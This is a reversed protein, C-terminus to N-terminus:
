DESTNGCAAVCKWYIAATFMFQGEVKLSSSASKKAAELMEQDDSEYIVKIKEKKNQKEFADRQEKHEIYTLWALWEVFYM